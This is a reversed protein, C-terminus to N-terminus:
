KMKKMLSIDLKRTFGVVDLETTDKDGVVELLIEDGIVMQLKRENEMVARVGNITHTKRKSLQVLADNTLLKMIKDALPSDKVLKVMINKRGSQYHRKVSLGGGLVELDERVLDGGQWDKVKEPLVVEARKENKEELLKILERLKDSVQGYNKKKYEDYADRLGQEIPDKKNPAAEAVGLSFIAILPLILTKM